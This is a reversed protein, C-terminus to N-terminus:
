NRMLNFDNYKYQAIYFYAKVSTEALVDTGQLLVTLLVRLMVVTHLRGTASKINEYRSTRDFGTILKSLRGPM